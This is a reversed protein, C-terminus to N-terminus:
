IFQEMAADGHYVMNWFSIEHQAGERYTASARALTHSGENVAESNLVDVLQDVLQRYPESLYEAVWVRYREDAPMGRSSIATAIEHYGWQCPLLSAVIVNLSGEASRSLLFDTYGRCVPHPQLRELDLSNGGFQEYLRRVSDLEIEVTSTLLRTFFQVHHLDDAAAVARAIVRLYERLFLYDQGLYRRFRDDGLSGDAIAVVAPHSLTERHFDYNSERLRTFVGSM